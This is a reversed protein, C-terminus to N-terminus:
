ANNRSRTLYLMSGKDYDKETFPQWTSEMACFGYDKLAKMLVVYSITQYNDPMVEIKAASTDMMKCCEGVRKLFVKLNEDETEIEHEYTLFKVGIVHMIIGALFLFAIPSQKGAAFFVTVLLNFVIGIFGLACVTDEWNEIRKRIWAKLRKIENM